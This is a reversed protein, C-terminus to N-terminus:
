NAQRRLFAPIEMRADEDDILDRPAPAPPERRQQMAATTGPHEEEKERASGTMRHILNNFGFRQSREEAAPQRPAAPRSPARPAAARSAPEAAAREAVVFPHDRAPEPRVSAPRQALSGDDLDFDLDFGAAPEPEAFLNAEAAAVPEVRSTEARAPEPRIAESRVADARVADARVPEPRAAEVRAAGRADAAADRAAAPRAGSSQAPAAHVADPRAASAAADIGTAVVSVRMVNAMDPDLTSGVIINADPDVEARIRNAAEDLEFLTLDYGGTINILVGKAGKLSV